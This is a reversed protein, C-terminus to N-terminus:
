GVKVHPSMVAVPVGLGVGSHVTSIRRGPQVADRPVTAVDDGVVHAWLDIDNVTLVFGWWRAGSHSVHPSAVIELITNDLKHFAQMVSQGAERIRTCAVGLGHEIAKSTRSLDETFIVVHDIGLMQVGDITSAEQVDPNIGSQFVGVDLGDVDIQEPAVDDHVSTSFICRVMGQSNEDFRLKVGAVFISEDDCRLGLRSWPDCTGGLTIESLRMHAVEKM